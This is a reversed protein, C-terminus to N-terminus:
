SAPGISCELITMPLALFASLFPINNPWWLLCTLQSSPASPVRSQMVQPQDVRRGALRRDTMPSRQPMVAPFCSVKIIVPLCIKQSELLNGDTGFIEKPDQPSYVLDDILSPSGSGATDETGICSFFSGEPKSGKLVYSLPDDNERVLSWGESATLKANREKKYTKQNQNRTAIAHYVPGTWYETDKPYKGDYLRFYLTDNIPASGDTQLANDHLNWKPQDKDDTGNLSSGIKLKWMDKRSEKHSVLHVPLGPVGHEDQGKLYAFLKFSSHHKRTDNLVSDSNWNRDFDKPCVTCASTHESTSTSKPFQYVTVVDTTTISVSSSSSSTGAFASGALALAAAIFQVHMTANRTFANNPHLQNSTYLHLASYIQLSSRSAINLHLKLLHHINHLPSPFLLSLLSLILLLTAYSAPQGNNAPTTPALCCRTYPCPLFM